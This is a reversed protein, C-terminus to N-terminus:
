STTRLGVPVYSTFRGAIGVLWADFESRARDQADRLRCLGTGLEPPIGRRLSYPRCGLARLAHTVHRTSTRGRTGTARIAEALTVGALMAVCAQGCLNSGEPQRIHSLRYM